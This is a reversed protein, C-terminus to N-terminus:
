KTLSRLASLLEANGFPKRLCIDAGRRKALDLPLDPDVNPTGGSIAIVPCRPFHRKVVAIVDYGSVSDMVLDVVVAAPVRNAAALDILAVIAEQGGSLARVAYGASELLESLAFRIHESDDILVLLNSINKLQWDGKPNL